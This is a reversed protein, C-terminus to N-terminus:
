WLKLSAILTLLLKLYRCGSLHSLLERKNSVYVVVNQNPNIFYLHFEKERM